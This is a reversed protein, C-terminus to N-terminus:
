RTGGKVIIRSDIKEVYKLAEGLATWSEWARSLLNAAPGPTLLRQKRIYM